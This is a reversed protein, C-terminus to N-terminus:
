CVVTAVFFNFIFSLTFGVESISLKGVEHTAHVRLNRIFLSPRFFMCSPHFNIAPCNGPLTKQYKKVSYSVTHLTTCILFFDVSILFSHYPLTPMKQHTFTQRWLHISGYHNREIKKSSPVLNTVLYARFFAM